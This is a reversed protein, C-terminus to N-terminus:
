IKQRPNATPPFVIVALSKREGAGREKTSGVTHYAANTTQKHSQRYHLALKTYGTLGSQGRTIVLASIKGVRDLLAILRLNDPKYPM